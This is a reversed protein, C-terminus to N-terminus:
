IAINNKIIIARQHDLETKLLKIEQILELKQAQVIDLNQQLQEQLQKNSLSISNFSDISSSKLTMLDAIIKEKEIRASEYKDKSISAETTIKNLDLKLQLNEQSLKAKEDNATKLQLTLSAIQKEHTLRESNHKISIDSVM